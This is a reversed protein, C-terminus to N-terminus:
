KGGEAKAIAAKARDCYTRGISSEPLSRDFLNVMSKLEALLEPAASILKVDKAARIINESGVILGRKVGLINTTVSKSEAPSYISFGDECVEWPGKTSM